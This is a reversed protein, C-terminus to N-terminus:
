VRKGAVMGFHYGVIFVFLDNEDKFIFDEKKNILLRFNGNDKEEIVCPCCCALSAARTYNKQDKMRIIEKFKKEGAM